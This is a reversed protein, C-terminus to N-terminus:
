LSSGKELNNIRSELAAITRQQEKIGEILLPVIKEYKVAKGTVREEVVEPLVKEIEQALVGVDRGKHVTQTDKWDFTIGRIKMIKDIPQEISLVNKKHKKDSLAFAVVDGTFFAGGDAAVFLRTLNLIDEEVKPNGIYYTNQVMEAESLIFNTGFIGLNTVLAQERLAIKNDTGLITIESGVQNTYDESPNFSLDSSYFGQKYLLENNSGLIATKSCNRIRNDNGLVANALAKLDPGGGTVAHFANVYNKSVWSENWKHSIINSKGFVTFGQPLQGSDEHGIVLNDLGGVVAREVEGLVCSRGGVITSRRSKRISNYDGGVISNFYYETSNVQPEPIATIIDFASPKASTPTSNDHLRETLLASTEGDHPRWFLLGGEASITGAEGDSGGGTGLYLYLGADPNYKVELWAWAGSGNKAGLEFNGFNDEISKARVRVDAFDTKFETWGSADHSEVVLSGFLPVPVNYSSGESADVNVESFLSCTRGKCFEDKQRMAALLMSYQQGVYTNFESVSPTRGMFKQFFEEIDDYHIIYTGGRWGWPDSGVSVMWGVYSTENSNLAGSHDVVPRDNRLPNIAQSSVVNSQGNLISSYKSNFILNDFGSGVLSYSSDYISNRAGGLISSLEGDTIKNFYGGGINSFNGTLLNGYGGSISSFRSSQSDTGMISNSAGGLISSALNYGSNELSNNFGGGVFVQGKYSGESSLVLAGASTSVPVFSTDAVSADIIAGKVELNTGDWRLFSTGSKYLEFQPEEGIYGLFYGPSNDGPTKHSTLGQLAVSSQGKINSGSNVFGDKARRQIRIHKSRNERDASDLGSTWHTKGFSAPDLEAAAVADELSGATVYHDWDTQDSFWDYGNTNPYNTHLYDNLPNSSTKYDLPVKGGRSLPGQNPPSWPSTIDDPLEFVGPEMFHIETSNEPTNTEWWVRTYHAMGFTTTPDSSTEFKYDTGDVVKAGTDLRYVGGWEPNESYTSNWPHVYGVSVFWVGEEFESIKKSQGTSKDYIFDPWHENGDGGIDDLNNTNWPQALHRIYGSFAPGGLSEVKFYVVSLYRKSTDIASAPIVVHWGGDYDGRQNGDTPAADSNKAVWTNALEGRHTVKKEIFNEEPDLLPSQRGSYFYAQVQHDSKWMNFINVATGPGAIGGVGVSDWNGEVVPTANKLHRDLSEPALYSVRSSDTFIFSERVRRRNEYGVDVVPEGVGDSSPLIYYQSNLQSAIFSNQGDVVGTVVGREVIIDQSLLLGTAMSEYQGVFDGWFADNTPDKGSFQGVEVGNETIVANAIRFVPRGTADTEGPITVLDRTSNAISGNTYVNKSRYEGKYAFPVGDAGDAGSKVMKKPLSWTLTNDVGGPVGDALAISSYCPVPEASNEDEEPFSTSWGSPVNDLSNTVFSWTGGSPTDPRLLQTDGNADLYTAQAFRQYITVEATVSGEVRVAAQWTFNTSGGDKTGVSAWMPYDEDGDNISGTQAQDFTNYWNIPQGTPTALSRRFLIDVSAGHEGHEGVTGQTLSAVTRRHNLEHVAALKNDFIKLAYDVHGTPKALPADGGSNYDYNYDGYILQQGLGFELQLLDGDGGVEGGLRWFRFDKDSDDIYSGSNDKRLNTSVGNDIYFDTESFVEMAGDYPSTREFEGYAVVEDSSDLGVLCRVGATDSARTSPPSYGPRSITIKEIDDEGKGDLFILTSKDSSITPAWRRDDITGGSKVEFIGPDYFHLEDSTSPPESDYFLFTRQGQQWNTRSERWTLDSNWAGTLEEGTDLRYIGGWGPNGGTLTTGYPHIYGVSVCWVGLPLLTTSCITFYPNHTEEGTDMRYMNEYVNSGHYFSPHTSNDTDSGAQARKVYVISVYTKNSYFGPYSISWGGDRDYTGGSQQENERTVWVLDEAGYPTEATEILNGDGNASNGWSYEGNFLYNINGQDTINGATWATQIINTGTELTESANVRDENQILWPGVWPGGGPLSWEYEPRFGATNSTVATRDYSISDESNVNLSFKTKDPLIIQDPARRVRTTGRYVRLESKNESTNTPSFNGDQDSPFVINDDDTSAWFVDRSNAQSDAVVHFSEQDEYGGALTAKISISSNGELSAAAMGSASGPIFFLFDSNEIKESQDTGPLLIKYDTGDKYIDYHSTADVQPGILPKLNDTAAKLAAYSGGGGFIYNDESGTVTNNFAKLLTAGNTVLGFSPTLVLDNGLGFDSAKHSSGLMATMPVINSPHQINNRDSNNNPDYSIFPKTLSLRFAHEGVLGDAGKIAIPSGWPTEANSINVNEWNSDGEGYTPPSNGVNNDIKSEFTVNVKDGYVPLWAQTESDPVEFLGPAYFHMEVSSEPPQNDYYLYARHSGTRAPFQSTYSSSTNTWQYDAGNPYSVGSLSLKEGTDL